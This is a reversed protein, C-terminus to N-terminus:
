VALVKLLSKKRLHIMTGISKKVDYGVTDVGEKPGWEAVFQYYLGKDNKIDEPNDYSAWGKKMTADCSDINENEDFGLLEETLSVIEGPSYLKVKDGETYFKRTTSSAGEKKELKWGLFKKDKCIPELEPLVFQGDKVTYSNNDNFKGDKLASFKEKEGDIFRLELTKLAEESLSMDYRVGYAYPNAAVDIEMNKGYAIPTQATREMIWRNYNNPVEKPGPTYVGTNEQKGPTKIVHKYAEPIYFGFYFGKKDTVDPFFNSIYKNDGKIETNTEWYYRTKYEIAPDEYTKGNTKNDSYINIDADVLDLPFNKFVIWNGPLGHKPSLIKKGWHSHLYNQGQLGCDYRDKARAYSSWQTNENFKEIFPSYTNKLIGLEFLDSKTESSLEKDNFDTWRYTNNKRTAFEVPDKELRINNRLYGRGQEWLAKMPSYTRDSADRCVNRRMPETYEREKNDLFNFKWEGALGAEIKNKLMEPETDDITKNKMMNKIEAETKKYVPALYVRWGAPNESETEGEKRLGDALRYVDVQVPRYKNPVDFYDQWIYDNPTNFNRGDKKCEELTERIEKHMVGFKSSEDLIDKGDSKLNTLSVTYPNYGPKVKYMYVNDPYMEDIPQRKGYKGTYFWDPQGFLIMDKRYTNDKIAKEFISNLNEVTYFDYINSGTRNHDLTYFYNFGGDWPTLDQGDTGTFLGAGGSRHSMTLHSGATDAIGENCNLKIQQLVSLNFNAEVSINSNVKEVEVLYQYSTKIPEREEKDNISDGRICLVRVTPLQDDGETVAIFDNPEKSNCLLYPDKPLNIKKGNIKLDTLQYPVTAKEKGGTDVEVSNESNLLFYTKDGGNVKYSNEKVSKKFSNEDVKSIFSDKNVNINKIVEDNNYSGTSNAFDSFTKKGEETFDNNIFGNIVRSKVDYKEPKKIEFAFALDDNIDEWNLKANGSKILANKISESNNIGSITVNSLVYSPNVTIKIRKDTNQEMLSSMDVTILKKIDYFCNKNSDYKLEVKNIGEGQLSCSVNYSNKYNIIFKDGDVGNKKLFGVDNTKKTSYYIKDEDNEKYKGVYIIKETDGNSYEVISSDYVSHNLKASLDKDKNVEAQIVEKTLEGSPVKIKGVEEGGLRVIFDVLKDPSVETKEEAVKMNIQTRKPKAREETNEKVEVPSVELVESKDLSDKHDERAKAMSFYVGAPIVSIIFILSLFASLFRKSLTLNKIQARRERQKKETEIVNRRM